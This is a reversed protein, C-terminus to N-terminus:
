WSFMLPIIQPWSDMEEYDGNKVEQYSFRLEAGFFYRVTIMDGDISFEDFIEKYIIKKRAEEMESFSGVKDFVFERLAHESQYALTTLNSELTKKVAEVKTRQAKLDNISDRIDETSFTGERVADVLRSKKKDLEAIAADQEEIKALITKEEIFLQAKAKKAYEFILEKNRFLYYYCLEALKEMHFKNIYKYEQDCAIHASTDSIHAYSEKLYDAELNKSKIWARHVYYPAGCRKCRLVSSLANKSARFREAKPVRSAKAEDLLPLFSDDIIPKYIKSAILKGANDRTKGFYEPHSLIKIVTTAAFLKGRKTTFGNDNLYRAISMLSQGASYMSFITRVTEAEKEDIDWIRQGSETFKSSYGLLSSHIFEGAAQQQRKARSVRAATNAREFEAVSSKLNYTLVAEPTSIDLESDGVFLKVKHEILIKRILLSDEINRSLRSFEITWITSIKDARIDALMRSFEPRDSITSGSETDDYIEYLERMESAFRKGRDRQVQVSYNERQMETSVRVYIAIM